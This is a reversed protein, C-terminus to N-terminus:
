TGLILSVSVCTSNLSCSPRSTLMFAVFHCLIWIKKFTFISLSAIKASIEGKFFSTKLLTFYCWTIIFQDQHPLFLSELNMCCSFIAASLIEHNSRLTSFKDCASEYMNWSTRSYFLAINSYLCLTLTSLMYVCHQLQPCYFLSGTLSLRCMFDKCINQPNKLSM